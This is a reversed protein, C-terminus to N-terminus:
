KAQKKQRRKDTEPEFFMTADEEEMGLARVVSELSIVVVALQEPPLAQLSAILVEQVPRPAKRLLARGAETIVVEARRGDAASTRRAALKRAVLRRVVVSVSSPDTSTRRALEAISFGVGDLPAGAALQHLVFLQAGSVALAKETATSSLRLARIIRRLANLALALDDRAQM